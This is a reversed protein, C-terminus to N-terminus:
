SEDISKGLDDGLFEIMLPPTPHSAQLLSEDGITELMHLHHKVEQLCKAMSFAVNVAPGQERAEMCTRVM